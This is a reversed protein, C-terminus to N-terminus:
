HLKLDAINVPLFIFLLFINTKWFIQEACFFLFFSKSFIPFKEYMAGKLSHQLFINYWCVENLIWSTRLFKQHFPSISVLSLFHRSLRAAKAHSLAVFFNLGCSLCKSLLKWIFSIENYRRLAENRIFFSKKKEFKVLKDNLSDGKSKNFDNFCEVTKKMSQWFLCIAGYLANNM